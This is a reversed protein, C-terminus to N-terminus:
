FRVDMGGLAPAFAVKPASKKKQARDILLLVIGATVFAGALSYGIVAGARDRPLETNRLDSYDKKLKEYQSQTSASTMERRLKDGQSKHDAGTATFYIGAIGSGIGLVLCTWGTTRLVPFKQEDRPEAPAANTLLRVPLAPKADPEFVEATSLPPSQFDAPVSSDTAAERKETEILAAIEALSAEVKAKTAPKVGQEERLYQAFVEASRAYERLAKYCMAINFLVSAKPKIKYSNEFATLATQYDEELFASVGAEFLKKAEDHDDARCPLPPTLLYLVFSANLAASFVLSSFQGAFPKNM